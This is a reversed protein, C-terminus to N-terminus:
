LMKEFTPDAEDTVFDTGKEELLHVFKSFRQNLNSARGTQELIANLVGLMQDIDPQQAQKRDFFSLIMGLKGRNKLKVLDTMWGASESIIALHNQIDHAVHGLTRSLVRIQAERMGPGNGEGDAPAVNRTETQTLGTRATGM